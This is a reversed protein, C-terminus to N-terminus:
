QEDKINYSKFFIIFNTIPYEICKQHPISIKIEDITGCIVEDSNLAVSM